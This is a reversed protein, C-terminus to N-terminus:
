RTRDDLILFEEAAKNMGLAVMTLGELNKEQCERATCYDYKQAREPHLETGCTICRAM